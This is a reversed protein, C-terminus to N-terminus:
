REGPLGLSRRGCRIAIAARDRWDHPPFSRNAEYNRVTNFSVSTASAVHEINKQARVRMRRFARGDWGDRPYKTKM